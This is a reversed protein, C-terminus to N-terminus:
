TSQSQARLPSALTADPQHNKLYSSHPLGCESGRTNGKHFDYEGRELMLGCRKGCMNSVAAVLSGRTGYEWATLYTAATRWWAAKTVVLDVVETAVAVLRANPVAEKVGAPPGTAGIM